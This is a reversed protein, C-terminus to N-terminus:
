SRAPSRPLTLRFAAGRPSANAFTLDGGLARALRRCLSLGLGVGPASHAADRASKHFPRFLRAAHRRDIGGGSDSVTLTVRRHDAQATLTIASRGDASRGYKCANDVLNFLIQDLVAPDATIEAAAASPDPLPADLSAGCAAAHDELRPLLDALVPGLPRPSAPAPRRDHEIRSFALVNEVLHSLRSAERTLTELCAQRRDPDRIMDDALMESYLRFTNLPTRLEHTVSSVFAARRQGLAAMGHLVLALALLGLGACVWAVLVSAHLPSWAPLAPPPVPGPDFVLPLSALRATAPPAMDPQAPTLRGLPFLDRVADLLEAVLRPQDLWAGQIIADPASGLRRTLLLEGGVLVARFQEPAPDPAPAASPRQSPLARVQSRTFNARANAEAENMYVQQAPAYSGAQGTEAQRPPEAEPLPPVSNLNRVLLRNDALGAIDAPRVLLSRLQLLRASLPRMSDTTVFGNGVAVSCEMGEPVQPSRVSGDPLLEFHLLVRPPTGELLPSPTLVTGKPLATLGTNTLAHAPNAFARYDSPPRAGEEVTLTAAISEMRWLALRLREQVAADALMAHRAADAAMITRTAWALTGLVVAMALATVIWATRTKM